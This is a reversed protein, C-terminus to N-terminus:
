YSSSLPQVSQLEWAKGSPHAVETKENHKVNLSVMFSILSPSGLVAVEVKASSRLETLTSIQSNCTDTPRCHCLSVFLPLLVAVEALLLQQQWWLLCLLPLFQPTDAGPCSSSLSWSGVNYPLDM